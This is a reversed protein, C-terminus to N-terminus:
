RRQDGQVGLRWRRWVLYQWSTGLDGQGGTGGCDTFGELCSAPSLQLSVKHIEQRETNGARQHRIDLTKLVPEPKIQKRLLDTHKPSRLPQACVAM